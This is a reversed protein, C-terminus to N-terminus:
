RTPVASLMNLFKDVAMDRDLHFKEITELHADTLVEAVEARIKAALVAADALAEGLAKAAARIAEEDIEDAQIADRLARHKAVVPKAANAIEDKRAVLILAIEERQDDTLDLKAWLALAKAARLRALPRRPGAAQREGAATALTGGVLLGGAVMTVILAKKM